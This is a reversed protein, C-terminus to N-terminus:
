KLVHIRLTPGSPMSEVEALYGQGTKLRVLGSVDTAGITVPKTPSALSGQEVIGNVTLSQLVSGQIVMGEVQGQVPVTAVVKPQAGSVDAVSVGGVLGKTVVVGGGAAIDIVNDALTLNDVWRPQVPNSVDFEQVGYLGASAYLRDGLKALKSLVGLPKVRAVESATSINRIDVVAIGHSGDAVYAYDGIVLVDRAANMPLARSSRLVGSETVAWLILNKNAAGVMGGPWTDIGGLGAMVLTTAAKIRGTKVGLAYDVSTGAAILRLKMRSGDRMMVPGAFATQPTVVRSVLVGKDADWLELRVQGSTTKFSLGAVGGGAISLAGPELDLWREEYADLRGEHSAGSAELKVEPRSDAVQVNGLMDVLVLRESMANAINRGGVVALTGSLTELLTAKTRGADPTGSGLRTWTQTNPELQWLDASLGKGAKGGYVLVSQRHASYAVAPKDLVAPASGKTTLRAARGTRLDVRVAITGTGLGGGVLFAKEGRADHALAADAAEVPLAGIDKWRGTALELSWIRTM